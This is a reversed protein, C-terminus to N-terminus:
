LMETELQSKRRRVRGREYRCFQEAMQQGLQSKEMVLRAWVGVKMVWQFEEASYNWRYNNCLSHAALYNDLHHDGGTSHALVHDAEWAVGLPGGCIHCRGNTKAAITSRDSASLRQRRVKTASRPRNTRDGRLRRFHKILVQATMAQGHQCTASDNPTPVPEEGNKLM